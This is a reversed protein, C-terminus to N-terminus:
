RFLKSNSYNKMQGTANWHLFEFIHLVISRNWSTQKSRLHFFLSLNCDKMFTHTTTTRIFYTFADSKSGFGETLLPNIFSQFFRFHLSQMDCLGTSQPDETIIEIHKYQVNNFLDGFIGIVYRLCKQKRKLHMVRFLMWIFTKKGLGYERFMQM